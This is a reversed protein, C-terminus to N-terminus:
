YNVVIGNGAAPAQSPGVWMAQFDGPTMNFVTVAPTSQYPAAAGTLPDSDALPVQLGYHYEGYYITVDAGDPGKGPVPLGRVRRLLVENQQQTNWSPLPPKSGWGFALWKIIKRCKGGHIRNFRNTAGKPGCIPAQRLGMDEDYVVTNCWVPIVPCGSPSAAPSQPPPLNPVIIVGM